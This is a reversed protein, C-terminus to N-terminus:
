KRAGLLKILGDFAEEYSAGESNAVRPYSEANNFEEIRSFLYANACYPMMSYVKREIESTERIEITFLGRAEYRKKGQQSLIIPRLDLLLKTLGQKKAVKERTSNFDERM